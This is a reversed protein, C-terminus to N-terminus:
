YLVLFGAAKKVRIGYLAIRPIDHSQFVQTFSLGLNSASVSLNLDYPKGRLRMQNFYNIRISERQVFGPDQLEKM